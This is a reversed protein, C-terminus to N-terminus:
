NSIERVYYIGAATRIVTKPTIGYAIGLRPAFDLKNWRSVTNGFRGDRVQGISTPTQFAPNGEFLSGTGARVFTPTISNDWHYDLNVSAMTNIAGRRNQRM